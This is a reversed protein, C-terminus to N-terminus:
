LSGILLKKHKKRIQRIQRKTFKTPSTDNVPCGGMEIDNRDYMIYSNLVWKCNTTAEGSLFGCEYITLHEFVQENFGIKEIM